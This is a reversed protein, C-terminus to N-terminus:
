SARILQQAAVGVKTADNVVVRLGIVLLLRSGPVVVDARGIEKKRWGGGGGGGGCRFRLALAM